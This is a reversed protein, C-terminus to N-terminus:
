CLILLKKIKSIYNIIKTKKSVRHSGLSPIHYDLIKVIFNPFGLLCNVM